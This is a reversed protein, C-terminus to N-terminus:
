FFHCVPLYGTGVINGRHLRYAGGLGYEEPVRNERYSEIAAPLNYLIPVDIFHLPIVQQDETCASMVIPFFEAVGSVPMHVKM